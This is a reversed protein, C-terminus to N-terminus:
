AGAHAAMRADLREALAGAVLQAGAVALSLPVLAAVLAVPPANGAVADAVLGGWGGPALGVFAVAAELMVLSSLGFAASVLVAPAAHPLVHRWLVRAAGCGLARAAAVFPEATVRLIESRTVRAVEAWRVLGVALGLLAISGDSRVTAALAVVLVTPFAQVVELPRAVAGEWIGGRYGALTGLAGGGVLALLTALAAFGLARRAGGVVRALVDRGLHDTGLPHRWCPADAGAEPAREDTRLRPAESAHWLPWVVHDTAHLARAAAEDLGAYRAPAIVGPLVSLGDKGIAVVPAPGVIVEAFLAPGAVAALLVLGLRLRAARTM